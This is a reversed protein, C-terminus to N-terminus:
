KTKQPEGSANQERDFTTAGFVLARIAPTWDPVDFPSSAEQHPPLLRVQVTRSGDPKPRPPTM